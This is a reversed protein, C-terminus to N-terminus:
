FILKLRKEQQKNGRGGKKVSTKTKPYKHNLEQSLHECDQSNENQEETRGHCQRVTPKHLEAGCGVEDEARLKGV